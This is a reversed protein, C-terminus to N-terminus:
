LRILDGNAMPGVTRHEGVLRWRGLTPGGLLVVTLVVFVVSPGGAELPLGMRQACWGVILGLMMAAGPSMLVHDYGSVIWRRTVVRGLLSVPPWYRGCYIAMRVVAAVIPFAIYIMPTMSLRDAQGIDYLVVHVLWGALLSLMFGHGAPILAEASRSRFVDYPYVLRVLGGQTRNRIAVFAERLEKMFPTDWPFRAMSRRLGVLALVYLCAVVVMWAFDYERLRAVLGLGFAVVYAESLGGTCANVISLVLVYACVFAALCAAPTAHPTGAGLAALGAVLYADQFVLQVPGAPLPLRSSWPVGRLWQRYQPRCAPHFNLVRFVAYSVCAPFILAERPYLLRDPLPIDSLRLAYEILWLLGYSVGFLWLVWPPPLTKTIWRTM